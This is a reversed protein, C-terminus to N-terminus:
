WGLEEETFCEEKTTKMGKIISASMGPISDLYLTEQIASWDATSLVIVSGTKGKIQVPQHSEVVRSILHYIDSRAETANITEM